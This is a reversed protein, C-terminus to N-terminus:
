GVRGIAPGADRASSASPPQPAATNSRAASAAGPRSGGQFAMTRVEGTQPCVCSVRGREDHVIVDARGPFLPRTIPRTM